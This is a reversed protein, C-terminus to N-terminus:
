SFLGRRDILFGERAQAGLVLITAGPKQLKSEVVM